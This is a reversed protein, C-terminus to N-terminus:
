QAARLLMLIPTAQPRRGLTSRGQGLKRARRESALAAAGLRCRPFPREIRDAQEERLIQGNRKRCGALVRSLISTQAGQEPTLIFPVRMIKSVRGQFVRFFTGVVGSNNHGFGTRVVGPHLCNATVGTSELRRALEYTYLVNALKSQCYAAIGAYKNEGQFGDFDIKGRTHGSSSVNIIRAPATTKLLDLLLETLLFHALHNVGFTTEFGDETLSLQSNYAGANNVLVHLQQHGQRVESALGRVAQLSALDALMLHVDNSGGSRRRVDSLAAKGRESDRSVMVVTAGLTALAVATEKGIGGSAGTILCTRGKMSSSTAM